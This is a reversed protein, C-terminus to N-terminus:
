NMIDLGSDVIRLAQSLKGILEGIRVWDPLDLANLKEPRNLVVTAVTDQVETYVPESM